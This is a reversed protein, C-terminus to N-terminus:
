HEYPDSPQNVPSMSTLDATPVYDNAESATGKQASVVATVWTNVPYKATGTLHIQMPTADAACCSITMRALSYGSTYGDAAPAIFGIVTIDNDSASDDGDYLARMVFDKLTLQPDKGSPLDPFQMTPRQKAFAEVGEAHGKGDNFAIEGDGGGTAVDAGPDEHAAVGALGALAQSGANRTVADAGLAPPALLLLVLIPALILWPAKSRDHSHGHTEDDVNPHVSGPHTEADGQAAASRLSLENVTAIEPADAPHSQATGAQKARLATGIGLAITALGVAILLSGAIVLLPGFGPKVYSTFRGTVTISILLGGLLTMLVSQTTKNM